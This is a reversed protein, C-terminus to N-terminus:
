RLWARLVMEIGWVLHCARNGPTGGTGRPWGSLRAVARLVQGSVSESLAVSTKREKVLLAVDFM